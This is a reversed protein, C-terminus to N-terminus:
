MYGKESTFWSKLDLLQFSIPALSRSSFNYLVSTEDCGKIFDWIPTRAWEPVEKWVCKFDSAHTLLGIIVGIIENTAYM